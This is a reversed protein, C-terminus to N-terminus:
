LITSSTGRWVRVKIVSPDGLKSNEFIRIVLYPVCHEYRATEISDTNNTAFVKITGNAGVSNTMYMYWFTTAM